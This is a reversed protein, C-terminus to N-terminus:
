RGMANSTGLLLPVQASHLTRVIDPDLPGGLPSYQYAVVTRGSARAQMRSHAPSAAADARQRGARASVSAALIPRGPDTLIADLIKPLLAPDDYIAGTGDIPNTVSGFEPMVAEIRECTAPHLTALTAGADHLVDAAIAAGGGSGSIVVIERGVEPDRPAIAFLEITEVFEDYRSSRCSAAVACSRRWSKPTAPSRAPIPNCWSGAPRRGAPRSCCSPSAGRM